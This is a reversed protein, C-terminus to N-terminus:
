TVKILRTTLVTRGEDLTVRLTGRAHSKISVLCQRWPGTNCGGTTGKALTVAVAQNAKVGLVLVSIVAGVKASKSIVVL